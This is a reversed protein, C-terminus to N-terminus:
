TQFHQYAVSLVNNIQWKSGLHVPVSLTGNVQDFHDVNRQQMLTLTDQANQTPIEAIYDATRAFGLTLNYTSKLTQSVQWSNTYQPRLQPNGQAFTYPDLFFVFPNLDEYRPRSIRRSYQYSVQYEKSVQQQVFVSPFLDLYRRATTTGLTRSNGKSRTQEARLGGQLKWKSGLSISFNTYGAVINERYVFHNSRTVDLIRESASTTYFALENNSRVQSIKGGLELESKGGLAKTYDVKAAYIDYRVPNDSALSQTKGEEPANLTLYRNLFTSQTEDTLTVYDADASITTGLTDLKGLYHLNFTGSILQNNLTNRAEVRQRSTDPDAGLLTETRFVNSEDALVVNATIGVSHKDNFNYDTGVRLSPSKRTGTQRSDQRFQVGPGSADFTRNAAITYLNPRQAMDLSGFSNWAGHKANLTGGATYGARGNYHAGAYVSGNLGTQQNKKLTLNIVGATGEADFKASPNTILELTRIQEAPMSRLVTQLEKGTLYVRKGDLMIQVGAKGNLQISGDQDVFVGPARALVDFATNGAALAKGEVNVVTRDALQVVTPKMAQVKVEKLLQTSPALVISGFDRTGSEAAIEFVPSTWQKYGLGNVQLRFSGPRPANLNFAGNLETVTGTILATDAAEVLTVNVFPVAARQQDLVTGSLSTNNQAFSASSLSTLVLLLLFHAANKM